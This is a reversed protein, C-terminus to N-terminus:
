CIFVIKKVICVLDCRQVIGDELSYLVTNVLYLTFVLLLIIVFLLLRRTIQKWTATRLVGTHCCLGLILLCYTEDGFNHPFRCWM